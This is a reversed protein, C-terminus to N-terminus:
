QGLRKEEGHTWILFYWTGIVLLNFLWSKLFEIERRHMFICGFTTM